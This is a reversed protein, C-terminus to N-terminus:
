NQGSKQPFIQSIAVESVLRCQYVFFALATNVVEKPSRM